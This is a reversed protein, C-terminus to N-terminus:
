EARRFRLRELVPRSPTGSWDKTRVYGRSADYAPAVIDLRLWSETGLGCAGLNGPLAAAMQVQWGLGLGSELCSSVVTTAGQQQAEESMALMRKWHGIRAAKLCWAAIYPARALQRLAPVYLSEDLGIKLGTAVHLEGLDAPRALPEELYEIREPPLDRFREIADQLELARNADLRVTVHEDLGSLLVDLMARDEAPAARGVKVKVCTYADLDGRAVAEAAEAATGVFLANIKVHERPSKSLVAAPPVGEAQAFISAAACQLGFVASPAGFDGRPAAAAIRNAVNSALAGFREFSQGALEAGVIGLAQDVDALTETHLGPLPAVEGYGELGDASRLRVLRGERQDIDVGGARYRRALPLQYKAIDIRAIKLPGM